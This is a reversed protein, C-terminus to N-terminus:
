RLLFDDIQAWLWAPDDFMVFHHATESLAFRHGKLGQYQRRYNGEVVDRTTFSKMGIWTGIVLARARIKSLEPMLNLTGLEHMARAVTPADSKLSWDILKPLHANDGVMGRVSNGTKVFAEYEERTQELMRDRFADPNYDPGFVEALHPLSDVIVIEGTLDPDRAALMMALVGGLSHGVIVPKVLKKERIYDALERASRRVLPEAADVPKVGAFGALTLVHCQFRGRYHKVAGDWTAGSSALGPILIMARPGTGTVQVEFSASWLSFGVLLLPTM